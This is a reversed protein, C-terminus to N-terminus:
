RIEVNVTIFTRPYAHAHDRNNRKGQSHDQGARGIADLRRSDVVADIRSGQHRRWGMQWGQVGRFRALFIRTIRVRGSM